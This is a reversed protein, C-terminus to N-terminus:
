SGFYFGRVYALAQNPGRRTNVAHTYKVKSSNVQLAKNLINLFFPFHRSRNEAQMGSTLEPSSASGITCRCIIESPFETPGLKKM